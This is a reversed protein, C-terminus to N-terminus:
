FIIQMLSSFNKVKREKKIKFKLVKWVFIVTATFIRKARWPQFIFRWLWELGLRRMFKPARKIKGSIFDFAGGVGIALKVSPIKELNEAIWKEQKPAGLAIFLIDPKVQNINEILKSNKKIGSEAKAIKLNPFKEKLKQATKEAVGNEAGLFFISYDSNQFKQCIKYILDVGSIREPLIQRCYKPYFILSLGSIFLKLLTVTYCHKNSLFKSAWLVGIGDPVSIDAKNLINKFKEDKQASIVMEPNVTVIYHSNESELFFEIKNLVEQFTIKDIKIDLINVKMAEIIANNKLFVFLFFTICVKLQM